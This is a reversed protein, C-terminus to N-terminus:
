PAPDGGDGDHGEEKPEHRTMLSPEANVVGADLDLDATNEGGPFLAKRRTKLSPHQM